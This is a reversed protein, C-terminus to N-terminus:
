RASRLASVRLSLVALLCVQAEWLRAGDLHMAMGRQKTYRCEVLAFVLAASDAHCMQRMTACPLVRSHARLAAALSTYSRALSLLWGLLRGVRDAYLSLASVRSDQASGGVDRVARRFVLAFRLCVLRSVDLEVM